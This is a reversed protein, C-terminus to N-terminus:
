FKLTKMDLINSCLGFELHVFFGVQDYIVIQNKQFEMTIVFKEFFIKKPFM